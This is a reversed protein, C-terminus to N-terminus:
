HDHDSYITTTDFDMLGCDLRQDAASPVMRLLKFAHTETWDLLKEIPTRYVTFLEPRRFFSGFGKFLAERLLDIDAASLTEEEELNEQLQPIYSM